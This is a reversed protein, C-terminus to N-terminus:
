AKAPMWRTVRHEILALILDIALALVVTITLAAWVQVASTSSQGLSLLFGVGENAGIFEAAITASFAYGVTLRATSLVWLGISPAYVHRVLQLRSAGMLKANNLLDARVESMGAAVNLAVIFLIVAVVLIVKPAIGFGFWVILLPLLILRPMANFFALFPEFVERVWRMTGLVIGVLIGLGTGIVYGYLFVRMTTAISDWLTGDSAWDKIQQWVASPRSFFVPDISGSNSAREWLLLVLVVTVIQALVLSSRQLLYRRTM